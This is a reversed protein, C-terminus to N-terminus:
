MRNTSATPTPCAKCGNLRLHQALKCGNLRLHQAHKCGNLRLHALTTRMECKGALECLNHM